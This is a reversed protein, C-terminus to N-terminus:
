FEDLSKSGIKKWTKWSKRSFPPMEGHTSLWDSLFRMTRPDSPYGSGFYGHVEAIKTVEADRECKAVISAASVIPYIRDAHHVSVIEVERNLTSRIDGGFREPDIDSADVYIIDPDLEGAVQGMTIAELYNLRRYKRGKAVYEDIEEPTIKRVVVREAIGKIMRCLRTRGAPSLLKSDRVGIESLRRLGEDDVAVGGIVLPGIISGRGADDLGVTRRRRDGTM